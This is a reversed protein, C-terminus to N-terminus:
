SEAGLGNADLMYSINTFNKTFTDLEAIGAINQTIVAKGEARLAAAKEM